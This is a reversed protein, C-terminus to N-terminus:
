VKQTSSFTSKYQVLRIKYDIITTYFYIKLHQYYRPVARALRYLFYVAVSCLIYFVILQTEHTDTHFLHEVMQDLASEIFEFTLHLIEFLLHLLSLTLDILVDPVIVAILFLLCYIIKKRGYRSILHTM